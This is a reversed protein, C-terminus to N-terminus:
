GETIIHILIKFTCTFPGTGLYSLPPSHVLTGLSVGRSLWDLFWLVWLVRFCCTCQYSKTVSSRAALGFKGCHILGSNFWYIFLIPALSLVVVMGGGERRETCSLIEETETMSLQSPLTSCSSLTQCASQEKWRFPHFLVRCKCCMIGYTYSATHLKIHM